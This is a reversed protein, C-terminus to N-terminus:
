GVEVVQGLMPFHVLTALVPRKTAAEVAEKYLFLQPSFEGAKELPEAGLFSKHDIIVYGDHVELLLDIWGQLLQHEPTRLTIPWERHQRVTEPFRDDIFSNLRSRMNSMDAVDIAGSVQWRALLAKAIATREDEGLGELEAGLFGHIANGLANMDPRGAVQVRPGLGGVSSAVIGGSPSTGAARGSATIRAAPWECRPHASPRWASEGGSVTDTERVGDGDARVAKVGNGGAGHGEPDSSYEKVILEASVDGIMLTQLGAELPWRVLPDGSPGVLEDLWSTCLNSGKKTDKRRIAFVMGDRARTMGVYLLRTSERRALEQVVRQEACTDLQEDLRAPASQSGFPWPWFRISRGALPDEPDVTTSAVVCRGFVNSRTGSDLSTLIVVPWELGKARHYTLVQVTDKGTGQAQPAEAAELHSLFGALTAPRRQGSCRNVYETGLGRLLDLNSMRVERNGWTPASEPLGVQELVVELAEIPTMSSVGVRAEDLNAILPDRRWRELTERLGDPASTLTQLWTQQDHHGPSLRVVTALAVTDEPDHLYQLAALALRGERTDILSGSGASARIGADELSGALREAEVNTRSLIAVHGPLLEPRRELLDRVAAALAAAESEQNKVPLNWSEIWGGRAEDRREDPISLRVPNAATEEFAISFLANCFHVLRERSRWSYPLNEPAPLRGTIQVMLEPDAGRFGYIAQKPDGVWTSQGALAHLELFLALQIPSTDQFEDVMLQQLRDGAAARFAANGRALDLVQREQDVFDMLGQARKFNQYAQLSEVACSFVGHILGMLDERLRPHELVHGSVEHVADLVGDEAKNVKLRSLRVWEGWPLRDLRDSKAEFKQLEALAKKSDQKPAEAQKLDVIALKVNRRLRDTLAETGAAGFLEFLSACSEDAFTRLMPGDMLNSRAAQVVGRVEDRWDPRKQYGSGSGDYGLRCAIPELERAHRDIVTAIAMNFLEEADEEPLVDLAPSLGADLAYEKLLRACISNVTGIFGDYVRQAAEMEGNALLDLRIRERLEAAARNTFTTAMLGEPPVGNGLAAAVRATLAFTKGSGAGANILQVGNM